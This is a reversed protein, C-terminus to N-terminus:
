VYGENTDKRKQKEDTKKTARAIDLVKQLFDLSQAVYEAEPEGTLSSLEEVLPKKQIDEVDKLAAELRPQWTSYFKNYTTRIRQLEAKVDGLEKVKM